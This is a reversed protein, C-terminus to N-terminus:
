TDRYLVLFDLGQVLCDGLQVIEKFAFLGEVVLLVQVLDEELVLFEERVHDKILGADLGEVFFSHELLFEFDFLDQRQNLHIPEQVEGVFSDVKLGEVRYILLWNDIKFDFM